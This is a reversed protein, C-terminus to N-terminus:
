VREVCTRNPVLFSTKFTEADVFRVQAFVQLPFWKKRKPAPNNHPACESAVTHHRRRNFLLRKLESVPRFYQFHGSSLSVSRCDFRLINSRFSTARIFVKAM